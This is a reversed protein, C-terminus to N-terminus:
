TRSDKLLRVGAELDLSHRTKGRVPEVVPEIHRHCGKAQGVRMRVCKTGDNADTSPLVISLDPISCKLAVSIDSGV